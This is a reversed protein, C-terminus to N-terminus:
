KEVAFGENNEQKVQLSDASAEIELKRDFGTSKNNSITVDDCSELLIAPEERVAPYKDALEVVNDAIVLGQVSRASVLLGNFSRVTNGTFRVNRHYRKSDIRQKATLLPAAVLPYCKGVEFGVSDFINNSITVDMVAGSEYWKNNDGEILIGHMQSAFTNNEIMVKGKTTVLVSRARNERITNNRMILDPNWTLNELSLDEDPLTEPVDALTLVFRHENLPEVAEITTEALPLLTVRSMIAVKDGPEGFTLGWQQFHSIECLMKRKGLNKEIKVYAGHVNVGDDLMHEFLCNELRITGKCGIFHTADARTSVLRQDNSTVTMADLTVNETREVILGMGGAEHVTTNEIKLDKSNTVHIAPCLRSTPHVGYAVLVSGVPPTQKIGQTFEIRGSGLGKVKTHNGNFRYQNTQYIPSRTEPDFVMNTGIPDDQGYRHFRIDGNKITYPYAKTDIEVVFRKKDPVSQVVKMEAHFSQTWDITFNKLTIRQSREVTIPVMRGHFLFTSGDGDITLDRHNFLPFGFRKLGNDHNAIPRYHELANEPHFDYTGKPFLLTVGSRGKVSELLKKVSYTVDTGPIIGHDAVNITECRASNAMICILCLGLIGTMNQM